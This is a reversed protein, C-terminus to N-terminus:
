KKWGLGASKKSLGTFADVVDEEEHEVLGATPFRVLFIAMDFRDSVIVTEEAEMNPHWIGRPVRWSDNRADLGQGGIHDLSAQPIPTGRPFSVGLARARQSPYSWCIFDDRAVVLLAAEDTFEVWKLAAATFSVEYRDACHGLLDATIKEGQVQCRFDDIPMLLYSAFRNAEKERQRSDPSDYDLLDGQACKFEDLENRHLLYHGLEHGLTFNIRGPVSVTEDYLIYWDDKQKRKVLMGEVGSVDHGKIKTIADSFRKTYDLAIQEVNVPFGMGAMRWITFLRTAWTFPTTPDTM